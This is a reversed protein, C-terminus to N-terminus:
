KKLVHHFCSRYVTLLSNLEDCNMNIGMEDANRYNQGSNQM